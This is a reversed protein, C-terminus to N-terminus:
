LSKRLEDVISELWKAATDIGSGPFSGRLDLVVESDGKEYDAYERITVAYVVESLCDYAHLSTIYKM